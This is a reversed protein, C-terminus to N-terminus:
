ESMLKVRQHKLKKYVLLGIIFIGIFGVSYAYISYRSFYERFVQDNGNFFDGLLIMVYSWPYIGIFTLLLYKLSNVGSVGAVYSIYNGIGFPRSIAISWVGYRNFFLKGKAIGSRLRKPIYKELKKGLFYPVLSALSYFISMGFAIFSTEIYGPTFIYGYTLVIILGPFPLSSGDLMMVLFLGPLGITHLWELFQQIM